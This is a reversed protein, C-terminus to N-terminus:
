YDDNTAINKYFAIELLSFPIALKLRYCINLDDINGCYRLTLKKKIIKYGKKRM